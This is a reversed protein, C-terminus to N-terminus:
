VVTVWPALEVSEINAGPAPVPEVQRELVITRGDGLRTTSVDAATVFSLGARVNEERFSTFYSLVSQLSAIRADADNRQDALRHEFIDRAFIFHARDSRYALYYLAAFLPIFFVYVGFL